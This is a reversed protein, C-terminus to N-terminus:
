FKRFAGGGSPKATEIVDQEISRDMGLKMRLDSQTWKRKIYLTKTTDPVWLVDEWESAVGADHFIFSFGQLSPRAELKKVARPLTIYVNHDSVQTTKGKPSHEIAKFYAAAEAATGFKLQVRPEPQLEVLVQIRNRLDDPMISSSSFGDSEM